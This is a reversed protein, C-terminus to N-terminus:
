KSEKQHAGERDQSVFLAQELQAVLGTQNEAERKIMRKILAEYRRKGENNHEEQAEDPVSGRLSFLVRLGGLLVELLLKQRLEMRRMGLRLEYLQRSVLDESGEQESQKFWHELARAQLQGQTIGLSRAKSELRIKLAEPLRVMVSKAAPQKPERKQKTPREKTTTSM